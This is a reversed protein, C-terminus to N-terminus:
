DEPGTSAPARTVLITITKSDMLPGDLNAPGKISARAQANSKPPQYLIKSEVLVKWTQSDVQENTTKVNIVPRDPSMSTVGGGAQIQFGKEDNRAKVLIEGSLGSEMKGNRGVGLDYDFVFTGQNQFELAVEYSLDGTQTLVSDSGAESFDSKKLSIDVIRDAYKWEWYKQISFISLAVATVLLLVFRISFKFKM